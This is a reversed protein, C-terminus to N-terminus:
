SRQHVFNKEFELLFILNKGMEFNKPCFKYVIPATSERRDLDNGISNVALQTM